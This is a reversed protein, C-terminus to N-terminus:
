KPLSYDISRVIFITTFSGVVFGVWPKNYWKDIQNLRDNYISIQDLYLQIEQNKFGIITSDHMSLQNYHSIQTRLLIILRDNISDQEVLVDMASIINDIEIQPIRLTDQATAVIPMM